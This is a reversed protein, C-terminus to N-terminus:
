VAARMQCLRNYSARSSWLLPRFNLKNNLFRSELKATPFHAKINCFFCTLWCSESRKGHDWGSLSLRGRPWTINAAKFACLGANRGHVKGNQKGWLMQRKKGYPHFIKTPISKTQKNGRNPFIVPPCAAERCQEMSCPHLGYYSVPLATAAPAPIDSPALQHTQHRLFLASVWSEEPIWTSPVFFNRVLDERTPLLSSM